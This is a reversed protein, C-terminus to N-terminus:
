GLRVPVFIRDGDREILLAVSKPKQALVDRVQQVSSVPKGNVALVVDGPQIGARAAPGDVGEVVLGSNVHEQRAEERTLPRLALGLQEGQAGGDNSASQQGGDDASGLKVDVERSSKGRWVKLRVKEGPAMLGIRSSLDGSSLVPQGNIETVVDGSRLGAAAAASDPSVSGVLAGDPRPLGFSDALPQSLDQITVGLRAHRVHGTALIQDKVKLAVNIPIAFSLGEFGGTRSYIQANIGVVGGDAAFLPGGSNGPNVAADTQIFPVYGDGPLSRGKASVIGQTASHEFGFPTGIALVPDGVQLQDPDDLRVSPLNKADIRLVAIDTASDSGLVKARFER